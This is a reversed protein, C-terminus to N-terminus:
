HAASCLPALRDAPRTLWRLARLSWASAAPAPAAHSPATDILVVFPVGRGKSFAGGNSRAMRGVVRRGEIWTLLWQVAVRARFLWASAGIATLRPPEARLRLRVVAHGQKTLAAIATLRPL